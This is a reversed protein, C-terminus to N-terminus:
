DEAVCPEFDIQKRELDVNKVTIKM